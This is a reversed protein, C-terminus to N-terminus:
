AAARYPAALEGNKDLIGARQLIVLAQKKNSSELSKLHKVMHATQEEKSLVVRGVVKGASMKKARPKTTLGAPRDAKKKVTSM